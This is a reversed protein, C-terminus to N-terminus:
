KYKIITGLGYKALPNQAGIVEFHVHCGTARGTEGMLAIRDGTDVKDGPKVFLTMLHGYYTVIGNSHLISIHNGMGGHWGGDSLARQVIGSAAAYISAGCKNAIDVANYYHIGQTIQGEAPYIFFNDALPINIISPASKLPQVGDPIILTDGIFIDGENVLSNFAIIDDIKAKYTKTIQSLTDGNKVIHLVGSVPLITLNQGVKLSSNKSLNNAWLLANLSINFNKAISEITDGPQVAYDIVDKRQEGSGGFIDGLTQTTLVTPTSVAYISNDQIIKLDPTELALERNQSFFLDNNKLNDTNKFFSNFFVIDSNKLYDPKALSDSYFFLLGFLIFSIAGFYFFPNKSFGKIDIKKATQKVRNFLKALPSILIWLIKNLQTFKKQFFTFL